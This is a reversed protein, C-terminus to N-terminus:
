CANNSATLLLYKAPEFQMLSFGFICRLAECLHEFLSVFKLVHDGSVCMCIITLVFILLLLKQQEFNTEPASILRSIKIVFVPNVIQPHIVFYMEM